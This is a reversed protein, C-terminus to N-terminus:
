VRRGPRWAARVADIWERLDGPLFRLPGEPAGLRVSPIRGDKAADYLWTRSVGLQAVVESPRLLTESVDDGGPKGYADPEYPRERRAATARQARRAGGPGPYIRELSALVDQSCGGRGHRKREDAAESVISEAPPKRRFPFRLSLKLAQDPIVPHLNSDEEACSLSLGHSRAKRHARRGSPLM